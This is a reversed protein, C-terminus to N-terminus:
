FEEGYLNVDDMAVAYDVTARLNILYRDFYRSWATSASEKATYFENEDENAKNRLQQWIEGQENVEMDGANFHDMDGMKMVMDLEEIKGLKGGYLM